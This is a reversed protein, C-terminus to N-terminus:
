RGLNRRHAPLRSGKYDLGIAAIQDTVTFVV